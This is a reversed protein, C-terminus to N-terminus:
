SYDYLYSNLMVNCFVQLSERMEDYYSHISKGGLKLVGGFKIKDVGM